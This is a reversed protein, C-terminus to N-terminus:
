KATLGFICFRDSTTQPANRSDPIPPTEEVKSVKQIARLFRELSIPKLLYDVADLEYGELAYERYATTFIVKPLHRLSKLFNTGLLQPM